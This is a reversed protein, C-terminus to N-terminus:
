CRGRVSLRARSSRPKLNQMRTFGPKYQATAEGPDRVTAVIREAPVRGLLGEVVARGLRGGARTVVIM